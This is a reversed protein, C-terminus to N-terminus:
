EYWMGLLKKCDESGPKGFDELGEIARCDEDEPPVDNWDGPEKKDSYWRQCYNSYKISCTARTAGVMQLNFWHWFLILSFFIIMGIVVVLFLTKVVVGKM